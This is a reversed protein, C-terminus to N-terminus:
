VKLYRRISFNSGILGILTGSAVLAGMVRIIVLMDTLPTVFTIAATMNDVLMYYSMYLAGAAILAGVLGLLTGKILFPARIFSDSSGVYKMVKIEKQRSFVTLKITTSILFMASLFLVVIIVMGIYSIYEVLHFVKEMVSQGYDVKEVYEMDEVSQSVYSLYEPETVQLVYYDPLPNGGDLALMLDTEPGFRSSLQELGEEKSVFRATSVGPVARITEEMALAEERPTDVHLFVAIEASAQLNDLFFNANVVLLMFIGVIFMSVTVTMVTALSMLRNRGISQLAQSFFYGVNRIGM